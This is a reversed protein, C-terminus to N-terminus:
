QAGYPWRNLTQPEFGAVPMRIKLTQMEMGGVAEVVGVVLGTYLNKSPGYPKENLIQPEWVTQMATMFGNKGM